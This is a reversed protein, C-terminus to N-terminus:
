CPVREMWDLVPRLAPPALDARALLADDRLLDKTPGSALIGGEALVILRDCVALAFDMDHTIVALARGEAALGRVAETITGVGRADLGSTPEDLM